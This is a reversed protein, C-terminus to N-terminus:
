YVDTGDVVVNLKDTGMSHKNAWLTSGTNLGTPNINFGNVTTGDITLSYSDGYTTGTEIAAKDTVVHNIDNFTCGTFKVNIPSPRSGDVYISKGDCNFTCDTYTVSTTGYLWCNYNNGTQNFTCEIFEATKEYVFYAGNIICNEYRTSNTHAMGAFTENSRNIVMNKFVYNGSNGNVYQNYGQTSYNFVTNEGDGEIVVTSGAAPMPISPANFTGEGLYVTKGNANKLVNSLQEQTEVYYNGQNDTMSGDTNTTIVTNNDLTPVVNDTEYIYLGQDGPQVNKFTSNKITVAMTTGINEDIAIGPKKSLDKFTCGDVTVSTVDSGSYMDAIKLGRYGNFACGTFTAEGSYVWAAYENAANAPNTSKGNFVCNTVKTSPGEFLVTYDFVCNEFELDGGFDLYCFEWATEGNESYYYTDDIFVVNKFIVKAGNGAMFTKHGIGTATIKNDNGIITLTKTTTNDAALLLDNVDWTANDGLYVVANEEGAVEAIMEKLSKSDASPLEYDKDPKLFAPKIEVNFDTTSTLLRGYINTKYNRELPVSSYTRTNVAAGDEYTTFTIEYPTADAPVLIYNMALYDYNAVPFGYETPIASMAYTLNTTQEEVEGTYLNLTTYANVSIQTESVVLGATAADQTDNTGINLQAFPRYLEVPQQAAGNVAMGKVAAYFADYSEQNAKAYDATITQTAANFTYISNPADAWFVVDYSRGNVLSVSFSAKLDANFTVEDQSVILPTKQGMEYIAYSLTTATAGNGYENAVARSSQTAPLEATFTVQSEGGVQTETYNDQSCATAFVLGAVAVLSYIKKM